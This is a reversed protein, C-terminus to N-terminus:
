QVLGTILEEARRMGRNNLGYRKGRRQGGSTIFESRSDIVRDIRPVQVGSQSAAQMLSVGTVNNVSKLKAYGYLLVLLADAPDGPLALLSVSDGRSQFVRDMVDQPLIGPPAAPIPTPPLAPPLGPKLPDIAPTVGVAAASAPPAVAAPKSKVLEMFAEVQARVIDAPGETDLEFDGVRLKIRQTAATDSM